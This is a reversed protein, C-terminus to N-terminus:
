WSSTVPMASRTASALPPTLGASLSAIAFILSASPRLGAAQVRAARGRARAALRAPRALLPSAARAADLVITLPQPRAPPLARPRGRLRGGRAAGARAALQLLAHRDSFLLGM